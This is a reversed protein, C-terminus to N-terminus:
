GRAVDTQTSELLGGSAWRRLALKEADDFEMLAVRCLEEVNRTWAAALEVAPVGDTLSGGAYVVGQLVFNVAARSVPKGAAVCHDRVAKALEARNAPHERLMAELSVFVQRFQEPSLAPVDTVRIVQEEIAPRVDAALPSFTRHFGRPLGLGLGALTHVRLRHGPRDAAVWAGFKGHGGWDTKLSPDATLARHAAVSGTVPGPAARVLALVEAAATTAPGPAVPTRPPNAEGNVASVLRPVDAATGNLIAVFDHSEVVSDAMERYAFAVAGAAIVTTM